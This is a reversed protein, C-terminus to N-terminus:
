NCGNTACDSRSSGSHGPRDILALWANTAQPAPPSTWSGSTVAITVAPCARIRPRPVCKHEGCYASIAGFSVLAM